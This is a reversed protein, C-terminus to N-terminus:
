GIFKAQKPCHKLILKKIQQCSMRDYGLNDRCKMYEIRLKRCRINTINNQRNSRAFGGM